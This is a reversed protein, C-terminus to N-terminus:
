CRLERSSPSLELPSSSPSPRLLGRGDGRRGRRCGGEQKAGHQGLWRSREAGGSGAAVEAGAVVRAV